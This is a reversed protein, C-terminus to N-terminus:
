RHISFSILRLGSRLNAHGTLIETANELREGKKVGEWRESTRIKYFDSM